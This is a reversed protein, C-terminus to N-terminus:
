KDKQTENYFEPNDLYNVVNRINDLNEELDTVILTRSSADFEVKGRRSLRRSVIDKMRGGDVLIQDREDGGGCDPLNKLRLIETIVPAKDTRAMTDRFGLGVDLKIQEITAIVIVGNSSSVKKVGLGQSKLFTALVVNWPQDIATYRDVKLTWSVSEDIVFLCGLLESFGNLTSLLDTEEVDISIKEGFVDDRAAIACPQINESNKNQAAIPSAWLLTLFIIFTLKKNM